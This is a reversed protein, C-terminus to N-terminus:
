FGRWVVKRTDKRVVLVKNKSVNIKLAMRDWPGWIWKYYTSSEREILFFLYFITTQMNNKSSKAYWKM